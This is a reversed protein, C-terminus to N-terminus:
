KAVAVRDEPPEAARQALRIALARAAWRRRSARAAESSGEQWAHQYVAITFAPSAHGLVTSVIVPHEGRRRAMPTIRSWPRGVACANSRAVNEASQDM